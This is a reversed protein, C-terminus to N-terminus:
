VQLLFHATDAPSVLEHTEPDELIGPADDTVTKQKKKYALANHQLLIKQLQIRAKALNSKSAGVSIGLEAAIEQHTCGEIIFLNLVARYVPTLKQISRIIERYSIRDLANENGDNLQIVGNHIDTHFRHKKMRRYHDISACIMIKRLWGRFSSAVDSYAPQFRHIDKFAKLFGDNLVEIAEEQNAVYRKCIAMCFSFFSTYIKKQSQRDNAACQQIYLTLEDPALSTKLEDTVNKTTPSRSAVATDTNMNNTQSAHLALM